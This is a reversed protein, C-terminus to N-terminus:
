QITFATASLGSNITATDFQLDLVLGNNLFKQVHFPVQTGSVPRYDSFRVRIPIDILENDDPHVNFDIAAPLFTSSDLYLDLETLHPFLPSAVASAAPQESVSIHEVSQSDLTETGVFQATVSPTAVVRSIAAVPSFWAPENVLNQYAVAHLVGDHGSWQGAPPDVTLNHVEKYRGSELTLDVFSAGSAIAQLTATGTEDDSGAIYHASGGLTV